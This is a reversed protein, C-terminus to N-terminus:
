NISQSSNQIYATREHRKEAISIFTPQYDNNNPSEDLVADVVKVQHGRTLRKGHMRERQWLHSIDNVGDVSRDILKTKCYNTWAYMKSIEYIGSVCASGELVKHNFFPNSEIEAEILPDVTQILIDLPVGLGEHVKRIMNLSLPIKGALVESVKSKSGLYKQMDKQNLGQQDMRFKIAEIPSPKEIPYEKSEYDEILVSLLEFRDFKDTGPELGDGDLLAMFEDMYEQYQMENRIISLPKNM